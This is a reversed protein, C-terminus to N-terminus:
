KKYVSVSNIEMSDMQLSYQMSNHLYLLSLECFNLSNSVFCVASHQVKYKQM